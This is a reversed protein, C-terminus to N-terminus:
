LVCFRALNRGAGTIKDADATPFENPPKIPHGM